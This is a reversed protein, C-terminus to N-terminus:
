FLDSINLNLNVSEIKNFYFDSSVFFSIESEVQKEGGLEPHYVSLLKDLEPIDVKLDVHSRKKSKLDLFSNFRVQKDFLEGKIDLKPGLKNVQFNSSDYNVEDNGFDILNFDIFGTGKELSGEHEM